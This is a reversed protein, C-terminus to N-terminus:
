TSDRARLDNLPPPHLDDRPVRLPAAADVAADIRRPDHALRLPEGIEVDQAQLLNGGIKRVRAERPTGALVLEGGDGRQQRTVDRNGSDPDVMGPVVSRTPM